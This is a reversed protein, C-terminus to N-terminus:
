AAHLRRLLDADDETIEHTGTHNVLRILGHPTIWLYVGLALQEVQYGLHTKVRHSGRDM